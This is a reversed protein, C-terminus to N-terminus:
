KNLIRKLTNRDMGLERATRLINNDNRILAAKALSKKYDEIQERFSLEKVEKKRRFDSAEIHLRNKYEAYYAAQEVDNLLQRINGPWPDELLVQYATESVGLINIGESERLQELKFEVLQPIDELRERLPPVDITLAAIRHYFDERLVGDSVAQDIPVNSASILRFDVDREHDEGVPRAKKDQFVGLLSAQLDLPLSDVEDLFFTGKHALFLLGQRDAEAGTFAGKKHGFLASRFMDPTSARGESKVFAGSSRKSFDHIVRASHSKGTGTEGNLFVPQNGSAAFLLDDRFRKVVDSSGIIRAEIAAPGRPKSQLIEFETLLEHQRFADQVLAAVHPVNPPKELFARAGQSLAKVGFEVTGQGTLMIPVVNPHEIRIDKLLQFGSEPGVKEDLTLDLVVVAINAESILELAKAAKTAVYISVDGLHAKLARQLSLVLDEDDDVLLLTKNM